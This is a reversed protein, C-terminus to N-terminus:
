AGVRRRLSSAAALRYAGPSLSQRMSVPPQSDSEAGAPVLAFVDGNPEFTCTFGSPAALTLAVMFEALLDSGGESSWWEHLGDALAAAPVRSVMGSPGTLRTHAAPALAALADLLRPLVVSPDTSGASLTYSGVVRCVHAITVLAVVAM